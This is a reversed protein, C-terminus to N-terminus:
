AHQAWYLYRHSLGKGNGHLRMLCGLQGFRTQYITTSIVQLSLATSNVQGSIATQVSIVRGREIRGQMPGLTGQKGKDFFRQGRM